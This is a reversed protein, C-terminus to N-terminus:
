DSDRHPQKDQSRHQENADLRVPFISTRRGGGPSLADGDSQLRVTHGDADRRQPSLGAKSATVPCAMQVLRGRISRLHLDPAPGSLSWLDVACASGSPRLTKIGHQAVRGELYAQWESDEVPCDIPLDSGSYETCTTHIKSSGGGADTGSATTSAQRPACTSFGFTQAAYITSSPRDLRGQVWADTVARPGLLGWDRSFNRLEWTHLASAAIARAVGGGTSSIIVANNLLEDTAHM